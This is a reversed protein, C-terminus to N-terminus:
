DKCGSEDQIERILDEVEQITEGKREISLKAMEVIAQADILTSDNLTGAFSSLGACTMGENERFHKNELKAHKECMSRVHLEIGQDISISIVTVPGECGGDNNKYICSPNIKIYEVRWIKPVFISESMKMM